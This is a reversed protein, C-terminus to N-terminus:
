GGARSSRRVNTAIDMESDMDRPTKLRLRMTAWKRYIQTIHLVRYALPGHSTKSEKPICTAHAKTIHRPWDMGREIGDLMRTLWRLPTDTLRSLTIDDWADPGIANKKVNSFADRLQQTTIDSINHEQQKYIDQAYLAGFDQLVQEDTRDTGKHVEAWARTM